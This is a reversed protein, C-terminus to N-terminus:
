FPRRTPGPILEAGQQIFMPAEQMDVEMEEGTPARLWVTQGAGPRREGPGPLLPGSPGGPTVGPMQHGMWPPAGQGVDPMKPAVGASGQGAGANRQDLMGQSQEASMGYAPAYGQSFTSLDAGFGGFANRRSAQVRQEDALTKKRDYDYREREKRDEIDYIRKQEALAERSLDAQIQAASKSAKANKNGGLLSAVGSIVAPAAAVLLPGAM